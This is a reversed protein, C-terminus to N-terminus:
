YDKFAIGGTDKFAIGGTDKFVFSTAAGTVTVDGSGLTLSLDLGMKGYVQNVAIAAVIAM